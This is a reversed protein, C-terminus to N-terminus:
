IQQKQKSKSSIIESKIKESLEDIEKKDEMEYENKFFNRWEVKNFNMNELRLELDEFIVEKIQDDMNGVLDSNSFGNEEFKKYIPFYVSETIHTLIKGSEYIKVDKEDNNLDFFIFEVDETNYDGKEGFKYNTIEREIESTHYIDNVVLASLEKGNTNIIKIIANNDEKNLKIEIDFGFKEKFSLENELEKKELEVKKIFNSVNRLTDFEQEKDSISGYKYEFTKIQNILFYLNLNSNEDIEHVKIKRESLFQIAEKFEKEKTEETTLKVVAELLILSHAKNKEIFDMKSGEKFVLVEIGDINGLYGKRYFSKNKDNYFEVNFLQVEKNETRGNKIALNFEELTIKKLVAPSIKKYLSESLVNEQETFHFVNGELVHYAYGSKGEYNVKFAERTSGDKLNIKYLEHTAKSILNYYESHPKGDEGLYKFM